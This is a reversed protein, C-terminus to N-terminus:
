TDPSIAHLQIISRIVHSEEHYSLSHVRLTIGTLITLTAHVYAYRERYQNISIIQAEMTRNAFHSLSSRAHSPLVL